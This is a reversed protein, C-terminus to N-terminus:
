AAHATASKTSSTLRRHLCPFLALLEMVTTGTPVRVMMSKCDNWLCPFPESFTKHSEWGGEVWSGGDHRMAANIMPSQQTSVIDSVTLSQCSETVMKSETISIFDMWAVVVLM